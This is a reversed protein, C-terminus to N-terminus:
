RGHFSLSPYRWRHQLLRAKDEHPLKYAGIDEQFVKPDFEILNYTAEEELTMTDVTHNIGPILIHGSDDVLKAFIHMLDTM